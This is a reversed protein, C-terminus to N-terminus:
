TSLAQSLIEQRQFIVLQHGNSALPKTTPHLGIAALSQFLEHQKDLSEHHLELFILNAKQLLKINEKVFNYEAGEIDIKILDITRDGIINLLDIYQIKHPKADKSPQLSASLYNKPNIWLTDYGNQSGLLGAIIQSRSTLNTDNINKQLVPLLHPNPEILLYRTDQINEVGFKNQFCIDALISFHGCHAGCDVILKLPENVLNLIQWYFPQCFVDQFSAVEYKSQLAIKANDLLQLECTILRALRRYLFM